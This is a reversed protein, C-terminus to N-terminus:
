TVIHILFYENQITDGDHQTRGVLFYKTDSKGHGVKQRQHHQHIEIANYGHRTEMALLHCYIPSMPMNLQKQQLGLYPM